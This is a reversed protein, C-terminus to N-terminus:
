ITGNRYFRAIFGVEDRPSEADQVELDHMIYGITGSPTLSLAAQGFDDLRLGFRGFPFDDTVSPDKSWNVFQGIAATNDHDIFYGTITIEFIGLLSDQIQDLARRPNPHINVDRTMRFGTAVLRGTTDPVAGGNFEIKNANSVNSENDGTNTCRFIAGTGAM